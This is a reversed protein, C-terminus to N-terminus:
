HLQRIAEGNEREAERLVLARQVGIREWEGRLKSCTDRLSQPVDTSPHNEICALQRMIMSCLMPCGCRAYSTALYMTAAFRTEAPPLEHKESDVRTGKM